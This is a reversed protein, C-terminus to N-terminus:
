PHARRTALRAPIRWQTLLRAVAPPVLHEWAEGQIMLRRVEQASIGKRSLPREWLVHCRIGLSEFLALKHRGWDDYITLFFVADPPAYHQYLQPQHIPFPVICFEANPVQAETLAEAILCQREYYTLPNSEPLDREPNTPQLTAHTPDPNTIGVVLFRCRSKGALLYRLHDNHLIQFRGHIFGIDHETM